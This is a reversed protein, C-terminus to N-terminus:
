KNEKNINTILLSAQRGDDVHALWKYSVSYKEIFERFAKLEHAECGPYNYIEDFMIVTGPVIHQALNDFVTKTSSYLDCDVHLLAIPETKGRIFEPLTDDFWGKIFKVNPNNSIPIDGNLSFHGKKGEEQVINTEPDTWDEPLGEFSDFGYLIKNQKAISKMFNAIINASTGVWVGFELWMGDVFVNSIVDMYYDPIKSPRHKKFFKKSQKIEEVDKM